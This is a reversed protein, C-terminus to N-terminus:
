ETVEPKLMGSLKERLQALQDRLGGAETEKAAANKMLTESAEKASHWKEYLVTYERTLRALETTHLTTTSIAVEDAQSM